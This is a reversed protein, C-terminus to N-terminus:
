SAFWGLFVQPDCFPRSPPAPTELAGEEAWPRLVSVHPRRHMGLCWSKHTSPTVQTRSAKGSTVSQGWRGLVRMGTGYERDFVRM